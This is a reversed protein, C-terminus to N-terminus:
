DRANGVPKTMRIPIARARSRAAAPRHSAPQLVELLKESINLAFVGPAPAEAATGGSASASVVPETDDGPTGAAASGPRSPLSGFSEKLRPLFCYRALLKPSASFYKRWAASSCGRA